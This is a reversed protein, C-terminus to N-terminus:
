TQIQYRCMIYNEMMDRTATVIALNKGTLTRIDGIIFRTESNKLNTMNEESNVMHSRSVYDVIFIKRDHDLNSTKITFLGDYIVYETNNSTSEKEAKKNKYCHKRRSQENKM